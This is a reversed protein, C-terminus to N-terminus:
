CPIVSHLAQALKIEGQNRGGTDEYVTHHLHM